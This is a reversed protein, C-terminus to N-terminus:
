KWIIEFDEKGVDRPVVVAPKYGKRSFKELRIKNFIVKDIKEIDKGKLFEELESIKLTQKNDCTRYKCAGICKLFKKNCVIMSRGCVPCKVLGTFWKSQKHLKTQNNTIFKMREQAKEFDEVSIIPPHTGEVKYQALEGKNRKTKHTLSDCVYKKQAITYGAYKEQRLFDKVMLYNFELGNRSKINRGSMAEAIETYTEGNLFRSFVEKIVKTEAKNIKYEKKEYDYDYGFLDIHRILGREMRKRIGWKCNSSIAESESQAFGALISLMLEGDASLSNINEKEFRVEVNLEKLMRVTKLLDVTNRAFRSISKTLIIDVEHAKCLDILENFKDRKKTDTGSIGLDAFVGVFEWEKNTQILSNYYSIQASLSNRLKDTDVSVRAYAAVKKRAPLILKKPKIQTIM